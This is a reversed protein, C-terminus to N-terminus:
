RSPDAFFKNLCCLGFDLGSVGSYSRLHVKCKTSATNGSLVYFGLHHGHNVGLHFDIDCTRILVVTVTLVIPM